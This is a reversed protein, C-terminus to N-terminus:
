TRRVAASMEGFYLGKVSEVTGLQKSLWNSFRHRAPQAKLLDEYLRQTHRVAAAQATDLRIKGRRLDALYSEVPTM